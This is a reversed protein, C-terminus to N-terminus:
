DNFIKGKFNERLLGNVSDILLAQGKKSTTEAYASFIMHEDVKPLNFDKLVMKLDRKSNAKLIAIYESNLRIMKDLAFYSHCIFITSILKHRGRIFYHSFVNKQLMKDSSFDDIIVLQLGDTKKIQDVTPVNDADYFTIYGSLKDELYNYLEQDKNRCIVHLHTYVHPSNKIIHFVFNTKGAFSPGLIVMRFLKQLNLEKNVGHSDQKYKKPLAAGYNIIESSM